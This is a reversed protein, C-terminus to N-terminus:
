IRGRLAREIAYNKWYEKDILEQSPMPDPPYIADGKNLQFEHKSFHLDDSYTSKIKKWLEEGGVILCVDKMPLSKQEPHLHLYDKIQENNEYEDRTFRERVCWALHLRRFDDDSYKLIFISEDLNQDALGDICSDDADPKWSFRNAAFLRTDFVKSGCDTQISFSHLSVLSTKPTEERYYVNLIFLAGLAAILNEITAKKLSAYRDHKLAQYAQKWKSGSTGRKDSKKLPLFSQMSHFSMNPAVVDIRKKDLHWKANLLKLCDTDFYLDRETGDDNQPSMNGGLTKYLEKSLAEIEIACRVILDAIYVSYVGKQEDSFHIKDALSLAETELNMYVPWFLNVM